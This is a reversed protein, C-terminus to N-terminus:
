SSKVKELKAAGRRMALMAVSVTLFAVGVLIVGVLVWSSTNTGGSIVKVSVMQSPEGFSMTVDLTGNRNHPSLLTVTAKGDYYSTDFTGPSTLTANAVKLEIGETANISYRGGYLTLPMQYTMTGNLPFQWLVSFSQTDEGSSWSSSAGAETPAIIPIVQTVIKAEFSLPVTTLGDVVLAVSDQDIGSLALPMYPPLNGGGSLRYWHDGLYTATYSANLPRSASSLPYFTVRATEGTGIPGTNVMGIRMTENPYVIARVPVSSPLSDNLTEQVVFPELNTSPFWESGVAVYYREGKFLTLLLPPRFRLLAVGGASVNGGGTWTASQAMLESAGNDTCCLIRVSGDGLNSNPHNVVFYLNQAGASSLFAVQVSSMLVSKSWSNYVSLYMTGNSLLYAQAPDVVGPYSQGTTLLPYFLFLAIGAFVVLIFLAVSVVRTTM